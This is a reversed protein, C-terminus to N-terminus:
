QRPSCARAISVDEQSRLPEQCRLPEEGRLSEERCLSKENRVPEEGRLPKGGKGCLSQGDQDGRIKRRLPKESCVSEQRRLSQGAALSM